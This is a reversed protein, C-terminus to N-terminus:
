ELDDQDIWGLAVARAGVQFRSKADLREQLASVTRRVTRVSVGLRRSVMEDTHGLGLLRLVQKEQATRGDDHRRRRTGFPVANKWAFNFLAVLGTLLGPNAVEVAAACPREMDVPVVAIRRDVILMRMPLVSTTRVESGMDCLWQAYACTAPDNRVSDLYITRLRVGRDIADRDLPRSAAMSAEPQAGGYMFSAVEWTCTESLERLRARVTDVGELRDIGTASTHVRSEAYVDLLATLSARSEELEQQRKAIETQQRALLAALGTKPNVPVLVEGASGSIRLLSMRALDDLAQRVQHEEMGLNRMLDEVGAQPHELMALYVTEAVDNIGLAEFM